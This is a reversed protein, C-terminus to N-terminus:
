VMKLLLGSDVGGSFAVCMDEEALARIKEKLMEKKNM